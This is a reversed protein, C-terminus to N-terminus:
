LYIEDNAYDSKAIIDEAKKADFNRINKLPILMRLYM